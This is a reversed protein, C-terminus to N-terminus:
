LIQNLLGDELATLHLNYHNITIGRLVLSRDYLAILGSIRIDHVMAGLLSLREVLRPIPTNLESSPLVESVCVGVIPMAGVTNLAVYLNEISAWIDIEHVGIHILTSDRILRKSVIGTLYLISVGCKIRRVRKNEM